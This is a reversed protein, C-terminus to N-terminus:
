KNPRYPNYTYFREPYQDVFESLEHENVRLSDPGRLILQYIFPANKPDPASYDLNEEKVIYWDLDPNRKTHVQWRVGLGLRICARIELLTM